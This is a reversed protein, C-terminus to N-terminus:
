RSETEVRYPVMGRAEYNPLAHPGDLSCTHLWVRRGLEFARRLAFTLLHGGIGQGQYPRLLGFFAIEVEDDRPLLEVYGARQGGVTAVWTEVQEAHAQWTAEDNDLWDTWAYAGGVATYFWRSVDGDPPDVREIEVPLRPPRAPRIEAPDDLALYTVTVPAQEPMRACRTM